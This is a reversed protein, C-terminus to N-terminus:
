NLTERRLVPAPMALIAVVCLMPVVAFVALASVYSGTLDFALGFPVPGLSAAFVGIMQGTGQISGLHRRGFYRPWLYAYHTHIAGNAIGFLVAYVIATETNRVFIMTLMAVTMSVMAGAFIPKTPYRDQLRGIVPMTVVMVVASLPFVRAAMAASLGQNEFISVQHFFLATVSASLTALSAAIIWFAPTRMAERVTLGLDAGRDVRTDADPDQTPRNGDPVLGLAEPKDHVLLIVMPLVIVWTGVGLWLWAQRWGVQEMLWQALPPHLAMSTSFGLAMLSMALGRKRDFWQAVLNACCLMLSGQGFFRLTGFALTLAVLNGVAGFGIAAAGLLLVVGAMVSRVGFRDILRGVFPLGMSAVLTAAAYASSM